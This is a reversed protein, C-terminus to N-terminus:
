QDIEWTTDHVSGFFHYRTVLDPLAMRRRCWYPQGDAYLVGGLEIVASEASRQSGYVRIVQWLLSLKHCYWLSGLLVPCNSQRLRMGETELM